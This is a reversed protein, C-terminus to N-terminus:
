IEKDGLRIYTIVYFVYEFSLLSPCECLWLLM